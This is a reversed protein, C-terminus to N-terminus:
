IQDGPDQNKILRDFHPSLHERMSKQFSDPTGTRLEELLDRHSVEGKRRGNKGERKVAEQFFPELLAQFRLLLDNCGIMFISLFIALIYCLNKFM